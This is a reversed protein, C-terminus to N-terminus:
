TAQASQEAVGAAGPLMSPHDTRRKGPHRRRWGIAMVNAGNWDTRQHRRGRRRRRGAPHQWTVGGSGTASTDAHDPPPPPHCCCAGLLNQPTLPLAASQRRAPGNRRHRTSSTSAATPPCRRPQANAAPRRGSERGPLGGLWNGTRTKTRARMVPPKSIPSRAAPHFGHRIPAYAVLNVGVPICNVVTAGTNVKNYSGEPLNPLAAALHVTEHDTGRIGITAAPTRIGYSDKNARGIIGTISRFGGKLLSFFGRESGDAKGAFQYEDIRFETRPQM